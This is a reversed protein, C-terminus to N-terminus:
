FEHQTFEGTCIGTAKELLGRTWTNGSSPFSVLAVAPRGTGNMFHCPGNVMHTGFKTKKTSQLCKRFAYSEKPALFERCLGDQCQIRGAISPLTTTPLLTQKHSPQVNRLTYLSSLVQLLCMLKHTM